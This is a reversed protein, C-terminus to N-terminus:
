KRVANRVKSLFELFGGSKGFEAFFGGLHERKSEKTAAPIVHHMLAPDYRQVMELLNFHITISM